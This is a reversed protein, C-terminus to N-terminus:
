DDASTENTQKSGLAEMFETKTKVPDIEARPPAADGKEIKAHVLAPGECRSCEALAQLFGQLSSAYATKRFSSSLALEDFRTASSSTSQGGTTEYCENDLIIEVFNKPSIKGITVLTGLSMLQNGDGTVVVIKKDPRAVALGLAISSPLGMSGLVYFNHPSHHLNFLERSIYGNCAVIYENRFCDSIARIAETRKM